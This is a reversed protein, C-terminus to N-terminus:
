IGLYNHFLILSLTIFVTYVVFWFWENEFIMDKM